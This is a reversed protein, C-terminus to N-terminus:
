VNGGGGKRGGRVTYGFVPVLLGARDLALIIERYLRNTKELLARRLEAQLRRAEEVTRARVSVLKELAEICEGYTGQVADQVSRPLSYMFMVVAAFYRKVPDDGGNALTGAEIIRKVADPIVYEYVGRAMYEEHRVPERM